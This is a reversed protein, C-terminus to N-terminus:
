LVISRRLRPVRQSIKNFLKGDRCNSLTHCSFIETYIKMQDLARFSPSTEDIRLPAGTKVRVYALYGMRLIGREFLRVAVRIMDMQVGRDRRGDCDACEDVREFCIRGSPHPLREGVPLPEGPLFSVCREADAFRQFRCGDFVNAALILMVFPLAELFLQEFQEAQM